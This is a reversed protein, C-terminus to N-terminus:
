ESFGESWNNDGLRIRNINFGDGHDTKHDRLKPCQRFGPLRKM